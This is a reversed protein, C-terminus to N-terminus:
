VQKDSAAVGMAILGVIIEAVAYWAPVAAWTWSPILGAIGLLLLVVGIVTLVTKSM